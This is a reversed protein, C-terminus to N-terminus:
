PREAGPASACHQRARDQALRKVHLVSFYTRRAYVRVGTHFQQRVGAGGDGYMNMTSSHKQVRKLRAAIGTSSPPAKRGPGATGALM